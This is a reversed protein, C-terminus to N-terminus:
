GYIEGSTAIISCQYHPINIKLLKLDKRRALKLSCIDKFSIHGGMGCWKSYAEKVTWSHNVMTQQKEKPLSQYQEYERPSLWTKIFSEPRPEDKEIDIGITQESVAAVALDYSHSITVSLQPMQKCFPMGRLTRLITLDQLSHNNLHHSLAYKAGIQGSFWQLKREFQRYRSALQWEKESLFHEKQSTHIFKRAESIPFCCFTIDSSTKIYIPPPASSPNKVQIM